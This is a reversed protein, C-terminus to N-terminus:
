HSGKGYEKTYEKMWPQLFDRRHEQYYERENYAGTPSKRTVLKNHCKACTEVMAEISDYIAHYDHLCTM